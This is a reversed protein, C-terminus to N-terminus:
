ATPPRPVRRRRLREEVGQQLQHDAAAEERRRAKEAVERFFVFPCIHGAKKLRDHEAKQAELVRRLGSTFPFVRGERNKTTGPDLRVEGADFDVQRWQLPLVESAIRWGTIAAFLILPRIESPLHAVVAALQDSEFFGKRVNDERLLPIHPRHLLKGAQVALTFMRKLLALERNIEANSAPRREEPQLEQKGDPTTFAKAKRVLVTNETQRKAIYERVDATTINAMRWGEFFPALHKRVRREVVVLSKKGNTTYDNLLDAAAEEFKLRGVKPTV